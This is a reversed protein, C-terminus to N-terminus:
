DFRVREIEGQEIRQDRRDYLKTTRSDSHAAIRQATELEGDNELFSTIGTARMSHPSIDKEIGAQRARRKVMDWARRRNLPRGTLEKSRNAARFLPSEDEERIGAVDLYEDMLERLRHHAPVRHRKGGKERLHLVKKGADAPAYNKVKMNVVAGVRGFTYLMTGILARDRLAVITDEAELLDFLANVEDSTLAPTKGETRRLKPGRVPSFPNDEVVQETVFWDYLKRLAALHQKVTADASERTRTYVAAVNPSIDELRIGREECWGFFQVAARGYAKRTNENSIQALFFEVFTRRAEEGAAEVTPPLQLGRKALKQRRSNDSQTDNHSTIEPSM